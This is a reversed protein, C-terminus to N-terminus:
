RRNNRRQVLWVAGAVLLMAGGDIAGIAQSANAVATSAFASIIFAQVPGIAALAVYGGPTRLAHRASDFGGTLSWALDDIVGRAAASVVARGPLGAVEGDLLHCRIEM